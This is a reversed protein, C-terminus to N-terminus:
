FKTLYASRVTVYSGNSSAKAQGKFANWDWSMKLKIHSYCILLGKKDVCETWVSCKWYVPVFLSPACACFLSKRYYSVGLSFM